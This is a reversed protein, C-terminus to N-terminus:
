RRGHRPARSNPRAHREQQLGSRSRSRANRRRSTSIPRRWTRPGIPPASPCTSSTRGMAPTSCTTTCARVCTRPTAGIMSRSWISSSTARATTWRRPFTRSILSGASWLGADCGADPGAGHSSRQAPRHHPRSERAPIRLRRGGNQGQSRSKEKDDEKKPETVKGIAEGPKVQFDQSHWYGLTYRAVEVTATSAKDQVDKAFLYMMKQIEIPKTVESYPSWLIVQNKKDMDRDVFQGTGAVPNFVGFRVRYQYAKGPEVTDDFVWFLLPKDRKSLDERYTIM